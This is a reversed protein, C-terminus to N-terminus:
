AGWTIHVRFGLKKSYLNIHEVPATSGGLPHTDFHWGESGRSGATEERFEPFKKRIFELAQDQSKFKIDKGQQVQTEFQNMQQPTIYEKTTRTPAKSGGGRLRELEELGTKAAEEAQSLKLEKAQFVETINRTETISTTTEALATGEEALEGTVFAVDSAPVATEAGEIMCRLKASAKGITVVKGANTIVKVLGATGIVIGAIDAGIKAVKFVKPNPSLDELLDSIKGWGEASCKLFEKVGSGPLAWAVVEIPAKIFGDIASSIVGLATDGVLKAGEGVCHKIEAMAGAPGGQSSGQKCYDEQDWGEFGCAEVTGCITPGFLHEDTAGRAKTGAVCKRVVSETSSLSYILYVCNHGELTGNMTSNEVKGYNTGVLGATYNGQDKLVGEVRCHTIRGHNTDVIGKVGWGTATGAIHCRSIDGHNTGAVGASTFPGNVVCDQILGWNGGVLGYPTSASSTCGKITGENREGLNGTGTIHVESVGAAKGLYGFASSGGLTITKGNGKFTGNFTHGESGGYSLAPAGTLVISSELSFHKGDSWNKHDGIEQWDEVNSILYPSSSSGTGTLASVGQISTLSIVAGLIIEFCRKL